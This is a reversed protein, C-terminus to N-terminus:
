FAWIRWSSCCVIICYSSYNPCIYIIYFYTIITPTLSLSFFTVYSMIEFCCIKPKCNGCDVYNDSGDFSLAQGYYGMKDDIGLVESFVRKLEYRVSIFVSGVETYYVTIRIHDVRTYTTLETQIYTQIVVGFNSNNIDEATWSESWLDDSAGHSVYAETTPWNDGIAKNTTGISGDSKVIKIAEDRFFGTGVGKKEIEVIIGDITAGSPISFGFNTAKLYHTYISAGTAAGQAYTDDSVKANDPNTWAVTGVANDDAATGPSDPGESFSEGGESDSISVVGTQSRRFSGVRSKSM